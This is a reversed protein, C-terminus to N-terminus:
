LDRPGAPAPPPPPPGEAEAMLEMMDAIWWGRASTGGREFAHIRCITLSTVARTRSAMAMKMGENSRTMPRRPAKETKTIQAIPGMAALRARWRDLIDLSWMATSRMRRRTEATMAATPVM